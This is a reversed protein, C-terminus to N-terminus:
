AKTDDENEDERQELHVKYEVSEERLEGEGSFRDIM